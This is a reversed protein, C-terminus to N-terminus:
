IEGNILNEFYRMEEDFSKGFVIKANELTQIEIFILFKDLSYRHILYGVFLGSVKYAVDREYYTFNEWLKKVDINFVHCKKIDEVIDGRYPKNFYVAIGEDIFRNKQIHPYLYSYIVHAQEHAMTHYINTQIMCMAPNAYSLRNGIKDLPEKYAYM